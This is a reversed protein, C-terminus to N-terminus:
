ATMESGLRRAEPMLEGYFEEEDMQTLHTPKLYQVSYLWAVGRAHFLEYVRKAVRKTEKITIGKLQQRLLQNDRKVWGRLSLVEGLYYYAELREHITKQKWSFHTFERLTQMIRVGEEGIAYEPRQYQISGPRNLDEKCKAMITKEESQTLLAEMDITDIREHTELM